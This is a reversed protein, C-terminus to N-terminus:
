NAAVTEQQIEPSGRDAKSWTVKQLNFLGRVLGEAMAVHSMVFYFAVGGLRTARLSVSVAALAAAVYFALQAYFAIQYILGQGILM